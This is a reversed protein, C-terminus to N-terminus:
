KTNGVTCSALLLLKWVWLSSKSNTLYDSIIYAVHLLCAGFNMKYELVNLLVQLVTTIMTGGAPTGVAMRLRGNETVITPTMSSLPTECPAIANAEAGVLWFVNLVGPAAAFNDIENNMLIGTEPVVFGYKLGYNVTFTLSVANRQEDIVTLDSTQHSEYQTAYFGVGLKGRRAPLPLRYRGRYKGLDQKPIFHQM